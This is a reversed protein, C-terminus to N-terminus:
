EKLTYEGCICMIVHAILAVDETAQTTRIHRWWYSRRQKFTQKAKRSTLEAITASVQGFGNRRVTTIASTVAFGLQGQKTNSSQTCIAEWLNASGAGERGKTTTEM